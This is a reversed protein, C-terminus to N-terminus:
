RGRVEWEGVLPGIGGGGGGSSIDLFPASLQAMSGNKGSWPGDASIGFSVSNYYLIIHTITRANHAALLFGDTEAGDGFLNCRKIRQGGRLFPRVAIEDVLRDHIVDLQVGVLIRQNSLPQFLHPFAADYAM